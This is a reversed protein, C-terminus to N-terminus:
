RRALSIGAVLLGGIVAILGALAVLNALADVLVVNGVAEDIVFAVLFACATAALGIVAVGIGQRARTNM